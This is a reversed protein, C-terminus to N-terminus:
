CSCWSSAWGAWSRWSSCAAPWAGEGFAASGLPAEDPSFGPETLLTPIWFGLAYAVLFILFAFLWLLGSRLGLGNTFLVAIPNGEGAARVAPTRTGAKTALVRGFAPLVLLPVIGGVIFVSPWGLHSMLPGGTLGGVVSGASFGTAVLM